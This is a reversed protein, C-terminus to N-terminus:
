GGDHPDAFWLQNGSPDEVILLQKGWWGAKLAVGKAQLDARIGDFTEAGFGFYLVGKGVREPQNAHLLLSVGDRTLGAAHTQGGEEHRWNLRFGLKDVYFDIAAGADAIFFVMGAEWSETM